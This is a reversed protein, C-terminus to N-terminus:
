RPPMQRTSETVYYLIYGSFILDGLNATEAVASAIENESAFGYRALDNRAFDYLRWADFGDIQGEAGFDFDVGWAPGDVSCGFGHKYFSFGGDLSLRGPDHSAAWEVNSRPRPIGAAELLAIAERVKEQYDRILEALRADM